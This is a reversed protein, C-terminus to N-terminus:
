IHILSLETSQAGTRLLFFLRPYPLQGFLRPTGHSSDLNPITDPLRSCPFRFVPAFRTLGQRKYVDVASYGNGMDLTVTTGTQASQEVNTVVGPASAGIMEGVQGGIFIHILSLIWTAWRRSGTYWPELVSYWSM